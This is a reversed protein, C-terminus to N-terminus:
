LLQGTTEALQGTAHASPTTAYVSWCLGNAGLLDSEEQHIVQSTNCFM